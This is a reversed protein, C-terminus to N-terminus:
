GPDLKFPDLDLCGPDLEAQSSRSQGRQGWSPALPLLVVAAVGLVALRGAWSLGKPTQARM